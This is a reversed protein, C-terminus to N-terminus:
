GNEYMEKIEKLSKKNKLKGKLQVFSIWTGFCLVPIIFWTKRLALIIIAFMLSVTSGFYGFIEQNILLEPTQTQYWRLQFQKWTEKLGDRKWVRIFNIINKVPNM